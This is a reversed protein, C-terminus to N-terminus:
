DGMGSRADAEYVELPVAGAQWAQVIPDVVRWMERIEATSVFLTQDGRICDILLREYEEIYQHRTAPERLMFNFTQKDSAMSFGPRKAWFGILIEERPEMRIIVENKYHEIADPPCLCPVPHKFTIVIEKIPEGLRKGSEITFPVGSWRPARMELEVKFYTEVDSSPHVGAIERYGKYQARRTHTRIDEPTPTKIWGMAEARKARVPDPAFNEPPDMTVLALMQLLHNQGVDRLAGLSEYFAGRMEVGVSEFVRAHVSEILRNDWTLEFLNNAFRFILINQLMEKALYHDIRYIQEERFLSSLLEDLRRATAMNDGFPKEVIVRTWGEEPSCPATLGSDALNRFIPELSQPPVALYFLKNACVGWARDGEALAQQLHHYSAADAFDGRQYHFLQLFENLHDPDGAGIGHEVLLDKVHTRFNDNNWERRAFGVIRFMAPLEGKQFLHFMAPVVKKKMLDGTAGFVVLVTPINNRGGIM